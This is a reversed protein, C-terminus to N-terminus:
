WKGRYSFDYALVDGKASLQSLKPPPLILLTFSNKKDEEIEDWILNYNIEFKKRWYQALVEGSSEQVRM